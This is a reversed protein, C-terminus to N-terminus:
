WILFTSIKYMLMANNKEIKKQKTINQSGCVHPRIAMSFNYFINEIYM